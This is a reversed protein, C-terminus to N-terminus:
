SNGNDDTLADMIIKYATPDSERKEFHVSLKNNNKENRSVLCAFGSKFKFKTTYTNQVSVNDFDRYNQMLNALDLYMDKSIKM